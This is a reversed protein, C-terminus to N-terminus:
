VVLADLVAGLVLLVGGADRPLVDVNAHSEEDVDPDFASELLDIAGDCCCCCRDFVTEVVAEGTAKVRDFESSESSSSPAGGDGGSEGTRSVLLELLLFFCCRMDDFGKEAESATTAEAAGAVDLLLMTDIGGDEADLDSEDSEFLRATDDTTM